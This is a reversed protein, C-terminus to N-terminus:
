LRYAGSSTAKWDFSLDADVDLGLKGFDASAAQFRSGSLNRRSSTAPRAGSATSTSSSSAARAGRWVAPARRSNDIFGDARGQRGEARGQGPSAESPRSRLLGSVKV